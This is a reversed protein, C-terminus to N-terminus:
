LLSQKMGITVIINESWSPTSLLGIYDSRHFSMPESKVGLVKSYLYLIDFIYM